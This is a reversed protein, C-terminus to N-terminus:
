KKSNYHHKIIAKDLESFKNENNGGQYFISNPYKWSDNSQSM